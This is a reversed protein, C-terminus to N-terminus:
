EYSCLFFNLVDPTFFWRRPSPYLINDRNFVCYGVWRGWELSKVLFVPFMDVLLVSVCTWLLTVCLLSIHPSGSTWWCHPINVSHLIIWGYFPHLMWKIVTILMFEPFVGLLLVLCFVWLLLSYTILQWSSPPLHFPSHNWCTCPKRRFHLCHQPVLHHSHNCLWSFTSLLIQITCCKWLMCKITHSIQRMKRFAFFYRSLYCFSM